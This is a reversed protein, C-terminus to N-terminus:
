LWLMCKYKGYNRNLLICRTKNKMIYDKLDIFAFNHSSSSSFHLALSQAFDLRHALATRCTVKNSFWCFCGVGRLGAASLLFFCPLSQPHLLLDLSRHVKHSSLLSMQMSVMNSGAGTGEANWTHFSCCGWSHYILVDKNSLSYVCQTVPPRQWSDFM